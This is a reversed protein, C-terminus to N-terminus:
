GAAAIKPGWLRSGEATASCFVLDAGALTQETTGQVTIAKGRYHLERGVSRASALLRLNAIPFDREAAVDLFVAGVAGTAGVVAVDLGSGSSM